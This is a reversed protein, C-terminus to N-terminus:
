MKICIGITNRYECGADLVLLNDQRSLEEIIGKRAPLSSWPEICVYPADTGPMHWIGLYSMDQYSVQISKKGNKSKLTVMDSMNKLIIADSDFLMHKLPLRLGGELPFCEEQETVFCDKSLIIRKPEMLSGFELYYDEFLKEKEFPVNFGPHGGVAFYMKKDDKNQVLYTINLKSNDLEYLVDFRFKYPYQRHTVDTDVMQFQICSDSLQEAEFIMDKAFGHIDMEFIDGNLRYKKGTMRGIYPFINPARDAWYKPNGQWIYETGEIDKISWLTAGKEQITVTLYDNKIIYERM